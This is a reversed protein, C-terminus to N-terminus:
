TKKAKLKKKMRKQENAEAQTDQLLSFLRKTKATRDADMAKTERHRERAIFASDKQIERKAGKLERKYLHKLKRAERRDKDPDYSQGAVYRCIVRKPETPTRRGNLPLFAFNV